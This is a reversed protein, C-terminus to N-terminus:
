VASLHLHLCIDCIVEVGIIMHRGVHWDSTLRQAFECPSIQRVIARQQLCFSANSYGPCALKSYSLLRLLECNISPLRPSSASLQRSLLAYRWARQVSAALAPIAATRAKASSSLLVVLDGAVAVGDGSMEGPKPDRTWHTLKGESLERAALQVEVAARQGAFSCTAWCSRRVSGGGRRWPRRQGRAWPQGGMRQRWPADREGRSGSCSSRPQGVASPSISQVHSLRGSLSALVLSLGDELRGHGLEDGEEEDVLGGHGEDEQWREDVDEGLVDKGLTHAQEGGTEEDALQLRPSQFLLFSRIVSYL